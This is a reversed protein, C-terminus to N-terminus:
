GTRTAAASHLGHSRLPQSLAQRSRACLRQPDNLGPSVIVVRDVGAEDMMPLAREITFPEPLQPRAGPDWCRRIQKGSICRPTSITRKSAPPRAQQASIALAAGAVLTTGFNRRTLMLAERSADSKPPTEDSSSQLRPVAFRLGLLSAIVKNCLPHLIPDYVIITDDLSPRFAPPLYASRHYFHRNRFSGAVPAGLLRSEPSWPRVNGIRQTRRSETTTM